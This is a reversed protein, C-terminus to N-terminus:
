RIKVTSTSYIGHNYMVDLVFSFSNNHNYSFSFVQESYANLWANQSICFFVLFLLILSEIIVKTHTCFLFFSITVRRNKCCCLFSSQALSCRTFQVYPMKKRCSIYYWHILQVLLYNIMKKGANMLIDVKASSNLIASDKSTDSFKKNCVFFSVKM